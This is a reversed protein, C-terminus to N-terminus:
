VNHSDQGSELPEIFMTGGFRITKLVRFSKLLDIFHGGALALEPDHVDGGIELTVPTHTASGLM